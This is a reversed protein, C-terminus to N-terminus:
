VRNLVIRTNKVVLSGSTNLNDAENLNYASSTVAYLYVHMYVLNDELQLIFRPM